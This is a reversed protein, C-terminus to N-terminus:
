GEFAPILESTSRLLFNPLILDRHERIWGPSKQCPLALFVVVGPIELENKLDPLTCISRVPNGNQDLKYNSLYKPNFGQENIFDCQTQDRMFM